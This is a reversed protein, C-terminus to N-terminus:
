SWRCASELHLKLCQISLLLTSEVRGHAPVVHSDVRPEDRVNLRGNLHPGPAPSVDVEPHGNGAQLAM